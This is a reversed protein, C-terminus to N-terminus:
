DMVEGERVRPLAYVNGVRPLGRQGRNCGDQEDGERALLEERDIQSQVRTKQKEPPLQRLSDRAKEREGEAEYEQQRPYAADGDRSEHGRSEAAHRQSSEDSHQDATITPHRDGNDDQLPRSQSDPDSSTVLSQMPYAYTGHPSEHGTPSRSRSHPHRRRDKEIDQPPRRKSLKSVKETDRDIERRSRHAPRREPSAEHHFRIETPYELPALAHREGQHQANSYEHVFPFIRSGGNRVEQHTM